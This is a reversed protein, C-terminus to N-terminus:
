LDNAREYHRIPHMLGPVTSTMDVEIQEHGPLYHVDGGDRHDRL